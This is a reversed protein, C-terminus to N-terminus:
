RVLIPSPQPPELMLNGDLVPKYVPLGFIAEIKLVLRSLEPNSGQGEGLLQLSAVLLLLYECSCPLYHWWFLLKHDLKRFRIPRLLRFKYLCGWTHQLTTSWSPLWFNVGGRFPQLLVLGVLWFFYLWLFYNIIM